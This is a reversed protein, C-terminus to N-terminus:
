QWSLIIPLGIDNYTQVHECDALSMINFNVKL